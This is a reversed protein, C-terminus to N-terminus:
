RSAAERLGRALADISYPKRLLPFGFTGEKAIIESYGSTLLVPMGPYRRRVEHALELGSMGAMMVDSFVADFHLEDEELLELAERGSNVLTTEHGLDHLAETSFQGVREDDEVVLVRMPKRSATAVEDGIDAASDAAVSRPLYITFSTGQGPKSHVQVNGGSQRVFGYVQSLGLGTGKGVEKTTFFPEFIKDMQEPAIGHGSDAV